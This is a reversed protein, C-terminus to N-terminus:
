EEPKNNIVASELIIAEAKDHLIYGEIVEHAEEKSIQEYIEEETTFGYNEFFTEEFTEKYEEETFTLNEAKVIEDLIYNYKVSMEVENHLMAYYESETIGWIYGFYTAGDVGFSQLAMYDYYDKADKEEYAIQEEIQGSFEANDIIKTIIDSKMQSDAMEKAQAELTERANDKYEQITKCTSNEAVLEDTLEPAVYEYAENINILFNAEKGALDGYGDPFTIDLSISDGVNKGILGNEFDELLMHSGITLEQGTASGGDFVEGGITGVYDIIVIDGEKLTRGEIPKEEELSSRFYELAAEVDEDTVEPLDYDVEIGKYQGLVTTVSFPPEVLPAPETEGTPSPTDTVDPSATPTDTTSPDPTVTIDPTVDIDVVVTTPTPADGTEGSSSTQKNDGSKDTKKDDSNILSVVIFVIIGIIVAALVLVVVILATPSKAKESPQAPVKKDETSTETTESGEATDVPTLNEDTDVPTLDEGTDVPTLNEEENYNEESM